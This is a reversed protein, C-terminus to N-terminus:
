LGSPDHIGMGKVELAWRNVAAIAALPERWLRNRNADLKGIFDVNSSSGNTSGYVYINHKPDRLVGFARAASTLEPFLEEPLLAWTTGSITGDSQCIRRDSRVYNVQSSSGWCAQTNVVATGIRSFGTNHLRTEGSPGTFSGWPSEGAGGICIPAHNLWAQTPSPTPGNIFTVLTINRSFEAFSGVQLSGGAPNFGHKFGGGQTPGFKRPLNTTESGLGQVFSFLATPGVQVSLNTDLRQGVTNAGLGTGIGFFFVDGAEDAVVRTEVPKVGAALRIDASGVVNGAFDLRYINPDTGTANVTVFVGHSSISVDSIIQTTAPTGLTLSWDATGDGKLRNLTVNASTYYIGYGFPGFVGLPSRYRMGLPSRYFRTLGM